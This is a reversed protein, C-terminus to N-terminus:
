GKVHSQHSRGEKEHLLEWLYINQGKQFYLAMCLHLTIPSNGDARDEESGVQGGAVKNERQM